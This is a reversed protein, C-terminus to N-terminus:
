VESRMTKCYVRDGGGPGPRGDLVAEAVGPQLAGVQHTQPPLRQGEGGRAELLEQRLLLPPPLLPGGFM